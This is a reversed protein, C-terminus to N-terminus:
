DPVIPHSLLEGATDQRIGSYVGIPLAILLATIIAIVGLEISVPLRAAIEQTVPRNSWLSRGLDGRSIIHWVWKGYQVYIPQDLGLDHRIAQATINLDKASSFFHETVMMDIVNGPILRIILFLVITVLVLSPIALLLRRLIYARM